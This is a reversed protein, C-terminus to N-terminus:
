GRAIRQGSYSDWAPFGARAPIAAGAGGAVVPHGTPPERLPRAPRTLLGPPLPQNVTVRSRAVTM